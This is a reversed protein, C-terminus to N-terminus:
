SVVARLAPSKNVTVLLVSYRQQARAEHRHVDQMVRAFFPDAPPTPAPQLDPLTDPM